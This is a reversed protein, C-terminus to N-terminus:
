NGECVPLCVEIEAMVRFNLSIFKETTKKKGM